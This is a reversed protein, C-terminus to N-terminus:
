IHSQLVQRNKAVMKLFALVELIHATNEYVNRVYAIKINCSILFM